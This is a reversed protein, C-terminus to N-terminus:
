LRIEYRGCGHMIDSGVGLIEGAMLWPLVENPSSVEFTMDGVIVDRVVYKQQRSSHTKLKYPKINNNIMRGAASAAPFPLEDLVEWADSHFYQMFEVRRRAAAVIEMLSPAERVSGNSRIRAPGLFDVTLSPPSGDSKPFASMRLEVIDNLTTAPGELPLLIKESEDYLSIPTGSRDFSRVSSLVLRTESPGLGEYAMLRMAAVVQPWYHMSRGVLIISFKLNEGASFYNKQFDRDLFPVESRDNELGNDTRRILPPAVLIMPHPQNPDKSFRKSLGDNSVSHRNPSEFIYQYGCGSSFWCEECVGDPSICVAEKLSIGFAGRLTAGLFPPLVLHDLARLEFDLYLLKIDPLISPM